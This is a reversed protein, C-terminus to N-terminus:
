EKVEEIKFKFELGLKRLLCQVEVLFSLFTNLDNDKKLREKSISLVEKLGLFILVDFLEQEDNNLILNNEKDKM